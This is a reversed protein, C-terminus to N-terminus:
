QLKDKDINGGSLIVVVNSNKRVNQLAASLAVASAGEILMNDSKQLQKITALISPEDVLIFNDVVQQCIPFTVSGPEMNGATADSLTPVSALDVIKGAKISELMVPSNTPLCGNIKISPKLAKLYSGIGAILGGGGVAVYVEDIQDIQQLLEIAITGQGHIIDFDNYPSIFLRNQQDALERAHQESYGSDLGFKKITVEYQAINDYKAQPVTEPVVVTTPINLLHSAYAIAAGHNGSSATIIGQQKQQDTLSLLKNLAGRLKFSGTTQLQECKLWVNADALKSLQTSLYLPTQVINQKIRQYAQEIQQEM